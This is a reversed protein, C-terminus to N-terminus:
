GKSVALNPKVERVHEVAKAIDVARAREEETGVSGTLFVVGDRTDVDIRLGKVQPDELLRNKVAATIMADDIHAGLTRDPDPADGSESGTRVALMDVVDEVGNTSRAIQVARDKEAQTNLNGTLTVVKNSTSVEIQSAKVSSDVALGAKVKATLVSDPQSCAFTVLAVALIPWAYWRVITTNM